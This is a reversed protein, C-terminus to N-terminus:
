GEGLYPEIREQIDSEYRSTVGTIQGMVRGDRFVMLTPIAMVHYRIPTQRQESVNLRCVKLRGSHTVAIRELVPAATRCPACWPAWFDVLVPVHSELVERDFEEDALDIPRGEDM